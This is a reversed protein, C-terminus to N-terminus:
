PEWTRSLLHGAQAGPCHDGPFAARPSQFAGTATTYCQSAKHRAESFWGPPRCHSDPGRWTGVHWALASLNLGTSHRQGHWAFPSSELTYPPLALAKEAGGEGGGEGSSLVLSQGRTCSRGETATCGKCTAFGRQPEDVLYHCSQHTHSTLVPPFAKRFPLRLLGLGPQPARLVEGSSM